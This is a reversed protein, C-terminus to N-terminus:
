VSAITPTATSPSALVIFGASPPSSTGAIVQPRRWASRTTPGAASAIVMVILACGPVVIQTSSMVSVVLYAPPDGVAASSGRMSRLWVILGGACRARAPD